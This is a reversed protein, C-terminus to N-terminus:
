TLWAVTAMRGTQGDRRYSFFQGVDAHTCRGGGSVQSVGLAALQQKALAYIDCFWKGPQGSPVFATSAHAGMAAIFADRVDDGVEFARPGIAPGLWAVLSTPAVPLTAITQNLVGGALGRWGGHVVACCGGCETALVVPLCDATMIACAYGPDDTWVADAQAGQGSRAHVVSAGHVQQLWCIQVDAPLLAQLRSRNSAVADPKDGVHQGLNWSDFPPLSDGGVRTTSLVGVGTVGALAPRLTAPEAM